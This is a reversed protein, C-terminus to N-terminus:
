YLERLHLDVHQLQDIVIHMINGRHIKIHGIDYMLIQYSMM